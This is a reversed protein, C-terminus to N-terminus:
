ILNCTERIHLAEYVFYGLKKCIFSDVNNFLFITKDTDNLLDFSPYKLVIDDTIQQRITNYRDCHFLFHNENEIQNSRCHQCIRLSELLKPVCHRGSEIRLSHNGSRLKAVARRHKLNKIQELYDFKSIDTKFISYFCLKKNSRILELQHRKLHNSIQSKVKQLNNKITPMINNQITKNHSQKQVDIYNHIIENVRLMFSSKTENALQNSIILCQKAISNEPLSELFLNLLNLKIRVTDRSM